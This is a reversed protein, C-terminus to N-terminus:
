NFNAWEKLPLKKAYWGNGQDPNGLPDLKGGPVVKQHEELFQSMYEANFTSRRAGPGKIAAFVQFWLGHCALTLLVWPYLAPLQFVFM